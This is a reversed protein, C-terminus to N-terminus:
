TSEEVRITMYKLDRGEDIEGECAYDHYPLFYLLGKENKAKLESKLKSDIKDYLANEVM